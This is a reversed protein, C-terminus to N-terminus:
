GPADVGSVFTEGGATSKRRRALALALGIGFL